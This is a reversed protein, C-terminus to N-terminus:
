TKLAFNKERENKEHLEKLSWVIFTLKKVQNEGETGGGSMAALRKGLTLITSQYL